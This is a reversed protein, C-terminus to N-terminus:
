KLKRVIEENFSNGFEFHLLLAIKPEIQSKLVM